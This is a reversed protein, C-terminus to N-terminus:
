SPVGRSGRCPRDRAAHEVIEGHHRMPLETTPGARVASRRSRLHAPTTASTCRRLASGCRTSSSRRGREGAGRCPGHGRSTRGRHGELVRAPRRPRRLVDPRRRPQAARRTPPAARRVGRRRHHRGRDRVVRCCRRRRRPVLHRLRRGPLRRPQARNTAPSPRAHVPVIPTSRSTSRGNVSRVSIEPTPSRRTVGAPNTVSRLIARWTWCGRHRPRGRSPPPPPPPEGHPDHRTRVGPRRGARVVNGTSAAMPSDYEAAAAGPTRPTGATPPDSARPSPGGPVAGRAPRAGRRRHGSM